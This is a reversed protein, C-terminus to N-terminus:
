LPLVSEQLLTRAILPQAEKVADSRISILGVLMASLYAPFVAPTYCIRVCASLVRGPLWCANRPFYAPVIAQSYLYACVREVYNPWGVLM